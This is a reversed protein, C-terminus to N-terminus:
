PLKVLIRSDFFVDMTAATGESVELIAMLTEGDDWIRMAKSDVEFQAVALGLEINNAITADFTHLDFFRHYLWGDWDAESIPGPIATQGVGFAENMVIGIGLACHFGDGAASSTKLYVQLSGRLRVLTVKSEGALIVGSGLITQGSAGTSVVDSGGPGFTWATTRRQSRGRSFGSRSRAM